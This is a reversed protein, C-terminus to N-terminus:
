TRSAPFRLRPLVEARDIDGGPVIMATAMDADAQRADDSLDPSLFVSKGFEGLDEVIREYRYYVLADADIEVPGYGAFFLDEEYPQVRRAIRSGAVFLLDRERPAVLPGDWDILYIAGDHAVLMNAAHIDAHCLVHTFPRAQLSRGLERARALTRNIKEQNDQWFGAFRATVPSRQSGTAAVVSIQEVRAASPLAFTESPLRDRFDAELGSSHVAQLTEGFVRWQDNSMGALMANEGEIFPYLVVTFAGTDDFTCWLDMTQTPLPALINPIGRALLARPVVLATENVSGRRIKLFFAQGDDSEIRYVFANLDYGIPLYTIRTVAIAYHLELCRSIAGADLKPDDRM